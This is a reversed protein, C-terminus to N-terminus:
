QFHRRTSQVRPPTSRVADREPAIPASRFPTDFAPNVALKYMSGDVLATHLNVFSPLTMSSFGTLNADSCDPLIPSDAALSFAIPDFYFGVEEDPCCELLPSGSRLHSDDRRDPIVFCLQGFCSDNLLSPGVASSGDNEGQTKEWSFEILPAVSLSETEEVFLEFALVLPPREFLGAHNSSTFSPEVSVSSESYPNL